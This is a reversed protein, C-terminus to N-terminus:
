QKVKLIHSLKLETLVAATNKQDLIIKYKYDNFNWLNRGSKIDLAFSGINQLSYCTPKKRLENLMKMEALGDLGSNCDHSWLKWNLDELIKRSYCRGAGLTRVYGGGFPTSRNMESWYGMRQRILELFWFDYIGTCGDFPCRDIIKQFYDTTLIDDSGVTIIFDPKTPKLAHLGAQMKKSLPRNEYELYDWGTSECLERSDKGESGVALKILKIDPSTDLNNYHNLVLRTVDARKWITTLLAVKIPKKSYRNKFRLLLNKHIKIQTHAIEYNPNLILVTEFAKIAQEFRNQRGLCLGLYFYISPLDQRTKLAMRLLDEARMVSGAEMAILGLYFNIWVDQPHASLMPHLLFEAQLM